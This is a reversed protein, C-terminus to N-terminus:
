FDFFFIEKKICWGVTSSNFMTADCEQVNQEKNLAEYFENMMLSM